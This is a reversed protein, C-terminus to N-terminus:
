RLYYLYTLYIKFEEAIFTLKLFYLLVLLYKNPLLYDNFLIILM